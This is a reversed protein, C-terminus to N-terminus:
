GCPVLEPRYVPKPSPLRKDETPKNETQKSETPAEFDLLPLQGRRLGIDALMQDDLKDLQRIGSERRWEKDIWRSAQRLFRFMVHESLVM